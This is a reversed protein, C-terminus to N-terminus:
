GAMATDSSSGNGAAPISAIGTLVRTLERRFSSALVDRRDPHSAERSSDSSGAGMAHRQMLERVRVDAHGRVERLPPPRV